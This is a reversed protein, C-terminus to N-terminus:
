AKGVFKCVLGGGGVVLPTLSSNSGFMESNFLPGGSVTHPSQANMLVDRNGVSFERRVESHTKNARVQCHVFEEMNILGITIM